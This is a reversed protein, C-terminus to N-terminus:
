IEYFDEAKIPDHINTNATAFGLKSYAADASNPVWPTAVSGKELKPKAIFIDTEITNINCHWGWASYNSDTPWNNSPTFNNVTLLQLENTVTLSKKNYFVNTSNASALFLEITRQQNPILNVAYVSFSYHKTPDLNSYDVLFAIYSGWGGHSTKHLRYGDIGNYTMASVTLDNGSDNGIHYSNKLLNVGITLDEGLIRVNGGEEIMTGQFVGQKNVEAKRAM